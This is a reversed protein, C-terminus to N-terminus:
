SSLKSISAPTKQGSVKSKLMNLIEQKVEKRLDEKQKQKQTAAYEPDRMKLNRAIELARMVPRPHAYIADLAGPTSKVYQYFFHEPDRTNVLEYYEDLEGKRDLEAEDAAIKTALLESQQKRELDNLRQEFEKRLKTERSLIYRDTELVPDIEEEQEAPTEENGRSADFLIQRIADREAEAQIRAEREQRMREREQQLAVNLNGKNPKTDEIQEDEQEATATSEVSEEKAVEELVDVGTETILAELEDNSLDLLNDEPM